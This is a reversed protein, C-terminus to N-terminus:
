TFLITKKDHLNCVLKSCKNIKLREPLFPLDSPLDHLNKPYEVVVTLMYGKNSDEDYSKLFDENFKSMNEELEFGGVPLKQSMAWGYLNNANDCQLFSEEEDKNYDKKYKNNTKVYRRITHYIGGRIGEEVMLLMDVDILLELEVGTKEFLSAM